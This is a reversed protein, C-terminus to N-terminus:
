DKKTDIRKLVLRNGSSTPKNKRFWEWTKINLEVKKYSSLGLKKDRIGELFDILNELVETPANDYNAKMIKIKALGDETKFDELNQELDQYKIILNEYKKKLTEVERESKKLLFNAINYYSSPVLDNRVYRYLIEVIQNKVKKSINSALAYCEKERLEIAEASLTSLRRLQEQTTSAPDRLIQIIGEGLILKDHYKKIQAELVKKEERKEQLQNSENEIKNALNELMSAKSDKISEAEKIIPEMIENLIKKRDRIELKVQEDLKRLDEKKQEISKWLDKEQNELDNLERKKKDVSADLSESIGLNKILIKSAGDPSMGVRNIERGIIQATSLSFSIKELELSMDLFSELNSVNVGRSKMILKIKNLEDLNRINVELAGKKSNLEIVKKELENIQNLIHRYMKLLEPFKKNHENELELLRIGADIRMSTNNNYGSKEFFKVSKSIQELNINQNNLKEILSIVHIVDTPGLGKKSLKRYFNRLTEIDSVKKRELRIIDNVKGLSMDMGNAIERQTFGQSYYYIINKDVESSGIHNM